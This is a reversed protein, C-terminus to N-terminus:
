VPDVNLARGARACSSSPPDSNARGPDAQLVAARREQLSKDRHGM